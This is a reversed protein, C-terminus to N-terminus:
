IFILAILLPFFFFVEKHAAVWQDVSQDKSICDLFLKWVVSRFSTENLSRVVAIDQLTEYWDGAGTQFFSYFLKKRKELDFGHPAKMENCKLTEEDEEEEEEAEDEEDVPAPPPLPASSASSQRPSQPAKTESNSAKTGFLSSAGTDDGMIWKRLIDAGGNGKGKEKTEKPQSPSSRVEPNSKRVFLSFDELDEASLVSENREAM